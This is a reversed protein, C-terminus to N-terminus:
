TISNPKLRLFLCVCLLSLIEVMSGYPRIVVIVPLATFLLRYSLVFCSQCTPPRRTGDASHVTRTHYAYNVKKEYDKNM